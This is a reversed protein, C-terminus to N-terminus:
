RTITYNFGEFTDGDFIDDFSDNMAGDRIDEETENFVTGMDSSMTEYVEERVQAETMEVIEGTENHTAKYM